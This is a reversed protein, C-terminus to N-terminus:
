STPKIDPQPKSCAINMLTQDNSYPAVPSWAEVETDSYNLKGRAYSGEYFNSALTRYKEQACDYEIQTTASLNKDGAITRVTNFDRLVWMKVTTETRALNDLDALITYENDRWLESWEAWASNCSAILLLALLLKKM